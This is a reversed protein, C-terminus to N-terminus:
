RNADKPPASGDAAPAAAAAAPAAGPLPYYGVESAIKQGDPSRAFSIFADVTGEPAGATYMFLYRSIPYTGDTVAQLTPEVAPSAADKKVPVARIGSEYAIGGYGIAGPDKAVANVVAATGPLTQTDAAFDDNQLVHEKFYAYTGSNNERGYLVIPRDPGGVDKWSKVQGTYIKRLQDLSLEKVPNDKNAFIALGDLAVRNEVAPKGRKQQVQAKEEDKMPRSSDAVDTTGNILAAVGTGSGGGTVQVTSGPHSAMFREALRQALIVMTDSGKVTVSKSAPAPAPAQAAPAGAPNSSEQNCASILASTAALVVVALPLMRRSL